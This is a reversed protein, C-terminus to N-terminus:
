PGTGTLEERILDERKLKRLAEEIRQSTLGRVLRGALYRDITRPDVSAREALKAVFDTTIQQAM